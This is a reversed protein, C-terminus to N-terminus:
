VATLPRQRVVLTAVRISSPRGRLLALSDTRGALLMDREAVGEIAVLDLGHRGANAVLETTEFYGMLPEGSESTLRWLAARRLAVEPSLDTAPRMYDFVIESGPALRGFARMTAAIAAASLYYSVGLWTAVAPRGPDFGAAGLAAGLDGHEFDVPVYALNSPPRLGMAELRARKWTQSAPHDVEFFRMGPLEAHLRYATSDLGAGLVVCQGIGTRACDRLRLDATRARWVSVLRIMAMMFTAQDAGIEAAFRAHLADFSSRLAAVDGHGSLGMALTDRFLSPTDDVILHAARMMAMMIATRSPPREITM